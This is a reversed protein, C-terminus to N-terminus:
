WASGMPTDIEDYRRAELGLGVWREQMHDEGVEDAVGPLERALAGLSVDLDAGADGVSLMGEEDSIVSGAEVRARGVVQERRELAEVRRTLELACADPQGSYLTEDSAM